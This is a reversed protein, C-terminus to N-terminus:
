RTTSHGASGHGALACSDTTEQNIGARNTRRQLPLRQVVFADVEQFPCRRPVLYRAVDVAGMSVTQRCLTRLPEFLAVPCRCHALEESHRVEGPDLLQKPSVLGPDQELTRCEGAEVIVGGDAAETIEVHQRTGLGEPPHDLLQAKMFGRCHDVSVPGEHSPGADALEVEDQGRARREVQM